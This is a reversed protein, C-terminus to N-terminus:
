QIKQSAHDNKASELQENTLNSELRVVKLARQEVEVKALVGIKWLHEAGAANKKARELQKELRGLDSDPAATSLFPEESLNEKLIPPEIDFSDPQEGPSEDAGLAAMAIATVTVLLASIRTM